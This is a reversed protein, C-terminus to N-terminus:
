KESVAETGRQLPVKPAEGVTQKQGLPSGMRSAKQFCSITVFIKGGDAAIPPPM